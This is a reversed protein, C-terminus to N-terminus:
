RVDKVLTPRFFKGRLVKGVRDAATEARGAGNGGPLAAFSNESGCCPCRGDQVNFIRRCDLCEVAVASPISYGPLRSSAIM